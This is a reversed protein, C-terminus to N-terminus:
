RPQRYCSVIISHFTYLKLSKQWKGNAWIWLQGGADTFQRGAYGGPAGVPQDDSSGNGSGGIVSGVISGITSGINEAAGAIGSNAYALALGNVFNSKLFKQVFSFPLKGLPCAVALAEIILNKSNLM